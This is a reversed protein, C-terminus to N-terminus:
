FPKGVIVNIKYPELVDTNDVNIYSTVQGVQQKTEKSIKESGSLILSLLLQKHDDGTSGLGNRGFDAVWIAKSFKEGNFVAGSIPINRQVDWYGLSFLVKNKDNNQPKIKNNSNGASIFDNFSYDPKFSIRAKSSSDIYSLYFNSNGISFSNKPLVRIDAVNNGNTDWYVSGTDCIWFGRDIGQIIFSGRMSSGCAPIGGETPVAESVTGIIPYPLHYFLKYSQYTIQSANLPKIFGDTGSPFDGQATYAIGFVSSQAVDDDAGGDIKSNPIDAIEIVSNGDNIMNSLQSSFETLDRYGWIILVDPYTVGSGCNNIAPLSTSCVSSTIKRGNLTVDQLLTQVYSLQGQTCDCAVYINNNVTGTTELKVVSDKVSDLKNVYDTKFNASFSYSHLLGMRDMTLLIDKGHVSNIADNWKNQVTGTNIIMGFAVFLSVSAIIAEIISIQGKM